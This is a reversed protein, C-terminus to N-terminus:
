KNYLQACNTQHTLHCLRVIAARNAKTHQEVGIFSAALALVLVFYAVFPLLRRRFRHTLEMQQIENFQLNRATLDLEEQEGISFQSQRPRTLDREEARRDLENRQESTFSSNDNM